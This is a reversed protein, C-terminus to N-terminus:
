SDKSESGLFESRTAHGAETINEHKIVIILTRLLIMLDLGLSQNKVYWLDYEFQREWTLGNRGNIQAWGTIGPRIQHRRAQAATYRSLYKTPLPRPGVLSMEGKLVNWLEPLEDLSSTRMFQGWRTLREADNGPGHRMTRFKIILFAKGEKGAREQQFFIPRGMQMAQILCIFILLPFLAALVSVTILIDFLRKM